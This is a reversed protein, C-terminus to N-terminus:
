GKATVFCVNFLSADSHAVHTLAMAFEGRMTSLGSVPVSAPAHIRQLPGLVSLTLELHLHRNYEAHKM